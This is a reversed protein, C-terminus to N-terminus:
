FMGPRRFGLFTGIEKVRANLSISTLGIVGTGALLIALLSCLGVGRGGGKPEFFGDRPKM